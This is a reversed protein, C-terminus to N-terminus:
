DLKDYTSLMTKLLFQNFREGVSATNTEEMLYKTQKEVLLKYEDRCKIQIKIFEKLPNIESNYSTIGLNNEEMFRNNASYSPGYSWVVRGSAMYDTLKTFISTSVLSAHEEAFSTTCLLLNADNLTEFLQGYNVFGGNVVNWKRFISEFNEWFDQRTFIKLEVDVEEGQLEYVAQAVKFLADHFGHISGAYAIVFKNRGLPIYTKIAKSVDVPNHLILTKKPVIGYRNALVEALYKSIMVWGAANNLTRKVVSQRRGGWHAGGEDMTDDMLYVFLPKCILKNIRWGELLTSYMMPVLLIIDPNFEHIVKLQQHPTRLSQFSHNYFNLAINVYPAWWRPESRRKSKFGFTLYNSQFTKFDAHSFDNDPVYYLIKDLPYDKLINTLTRGFGLSNERPPNETIVLMKPHHSVSIM